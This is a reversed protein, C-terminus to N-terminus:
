VLCEAAGNSAPHYASSKIHKVGNNRLFTEFEASVFQPGNDSVDPLGWFGRLAEITKDATTSSMLAVEPWRSYSDTIVLFNYKGKQAFDTHIRQWPRNAWSWNHVPATTPQNGNLQCTQCNSVLSEIDSDLNPWWFHGRALAKMKVIGQHNEHLECLLQPRFVEPIVVRFGWMVCNAEVTLETHRIFYSRLEESTVYKPWGNLTFHKVRQLISDLETQRAILQSSIPVQDLFSIRFVSSYEADPDERQLPLRSLADANAHQLSPKYCIDYQYAALILSWRQLRAAALTPVGTKPGLIKLLPKHDTLLTFKRGYLYDKFKSMGFIISLAEKEIQSYNVETKTLTRSAYAIPKESGNPFQHSIVAGIGYPSADCALIVPLKPDYHTLM